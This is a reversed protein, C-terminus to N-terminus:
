YRPSLSLKQLSNAHVLLPARRGIHNDFTSQQAGKFVCHPTMEVEKKIGSLLLPTNRVTLGQNDLSQDIIM